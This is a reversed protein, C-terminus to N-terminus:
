RLEKTMTVAHLRSGERLPFRGESEIFGCARYFARAAANTETVTLTLRRCARGRVWSEVAELLARGGGGGGPPPAAGPGL